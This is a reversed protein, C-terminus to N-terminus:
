NVSFTDLLTGDITYWTFTGDQFLLYSPSKGEKGYTISGPNVFFCGNKESIGALHTHGSIFIDGSRMPPPAEPSFLHGHTAFIRRNGYLLISYEATIPFELLHQDIHADCNGCVAIIRDKKKNLLQATDMPKYDSSVPNRPGHYLLDGLLLLADPQTNEFSKMLAQAAPYSGHIDSAILIKM